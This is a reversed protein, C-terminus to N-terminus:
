YFVEELVLGCAAMTKGAKARNKSAIIPLIDAATFKGCGVYFLTGAIIRVMNYLFANGSIKISILRNQSIEGIIEEAVECSFVTRVTSKASSGSACFAAFDFTGVFFNAAQQMKAVDLKQPVFAAYRCVLPNRVPANYIKYVYTKSVAGFRANFDDAVTKASQVAIDSPLQSNIVTPLKELPIPMKALEFTACQGNAHVGADTRSAGSIPVDEGFLRRLAFELVGQVSAANEQRQWGAYNTGDYAIKLLIKM